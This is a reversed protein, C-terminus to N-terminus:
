RQYHARLKRTRFLLTSLGTFLAVISLFIALRGWDEGIAQRQIIYGVMSKIWELAGLLLAAQSIIVVWPKRILLIVMLGLSLIVLIHVNNRSFHAALLLYSLIVPVLRGLISFFYNM